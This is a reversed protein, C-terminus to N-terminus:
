TFSRTTKLTAFGSGVYHINNYMYMFLSAINLKSSQILRNLKEFVKNFINLLTKLKFAIEKLCFYLLGDNKFYWFSLKSPNM